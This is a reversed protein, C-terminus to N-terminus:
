EGMGMLRTSALKAWIAWIGPASTWFMLMWLQLLGVKVGDPALRNAWVAGYGGAQSLCPEVWHEVPVPPAALTDVGTVADARAGAATAALDVTTVAGAAVPVALEAAPEATM